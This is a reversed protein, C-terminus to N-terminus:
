RALGEAARVLEAPRDLAARAAAQEARQKSGGEGTGLLSDGLWVTVVFRRAHDPGTEEAVRYVPALRCIQQCLEQLETKADSTAMRGVADISERFHGRIVDSVGDYGAELFIAGIVAEYAAALISAKERGGTKEEGKGLLLSENLQLDRAKAAFSTTSVLLARFKSLRGENEQPYRAILFESLVLGLVADGLFELREGVRPQTARAASSHTLAVILNARDRFSYGLREQVVDWDRRASTM